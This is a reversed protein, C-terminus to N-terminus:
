EEKEEIVYKAEEPATRKIEVGLHDLLADIIKYMRELEDALWDIHKNSNRSRRASTEANADIVYGTYEFDIELNSIREELDKIRSM